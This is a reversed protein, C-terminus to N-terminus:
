TAGQIRRSGPYDLSVDIGPSKCVKRLLSLPKV